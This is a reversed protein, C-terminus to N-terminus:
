NSRVGNVSTKLHKKILKRQLKDKRLKDKEINKYHTVEGKPQKICSKLRYKFFKDSASKAKMYEARLRDNDPMDYYRDKALKETDILKKKKFDIHKCNNSLNIYEPYHSM